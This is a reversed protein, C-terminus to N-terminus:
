DVEALRRGLEGAREDYQERVFNSLYIFLDTRARSSGVYLSRVSEASLLDDVGVMFVADAELGKFSQVTSYRLFGKPLPGIGAEALRFPIGPIAAGFPSKELRRRGLVVVDEPRFGGILLNNLDKGLLRLQERDDAYWRREVGPGDVILTEAPTFGCLMGTEVGIPRTNRCNIGLSYSAARGRLPRLVGSEIAGFLDQRPDYFMRWRGGALGGELLSDLVDLYRTTLLDQAEDVVVADYHDDVLGDVIARFALDPYFVEFLDSEDASPLEGDLGSRHVIDYLMAHMSTARVGPLDNVVRGLHDALNRNFCVIAVSCGIRSYRAAEEVALLTKGTGAGGDIVARNNRALGDLVRYQEATLRLLEKSIRDARARLSLRADFDPRVVDLVGAQARADLGVPQNGKVAALREVWRRHLRDLYVSFPEAADDADYVLELDIDPGRVGFKIDPTVVGYGVISRHIAGVKSGLYKFLAASASGAQDFPGEARPESDVGHRNTHIWMGHERRVRGGKVELVYVGDPGILVFDAEAWPKREHIALGVSHLAIWDDSLERRIVEFMGAEADSKCHESVVPPIMRAM